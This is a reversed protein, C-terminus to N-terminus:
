LAATNTVWMSKPPIAEQLLSMWLFILFIKMPSISNEWLAKPIFTKQASCSTSALRLSMHWITILVTDRDGIYVNITGPLVSQRDVMTCFVRFEDKQHVPQLFADVYTHKTLDYMANIHISYFGKASHGQDVYYEDPACGTRSLFTATSGDAAFLRYELHEPHSDVLANFNQFVAEIASPLLKTRQQVFASSTPKETDLGFFDLLKNQTSSSGEAVLFPIM